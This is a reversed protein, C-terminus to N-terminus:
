VKGQVKLRYFARLFPLPPVSAMVKLNEVPGDVEDLFRFVREIPNNQMLMSFIRQSFAGQRYMIQLLMADFLQYRKPSPRVAFPHGHNVLSSVIRRSDVQIRRFAFGTSAKVRGGKTGIRLVRSGVRRPFPQDTMPIIGDETAVIKYRQTGLVAEIYSRLAHEYEGQTLLPASFLTFEVVARNEAFPLIYIFRMEGRQPTRFDFLSPIGPDFVPAETEIEWGVFHQKLFHYRSEDVRFERPVFLGDFAYEACVTKGGVDVEVHDGADRIAEVSGIRTEVNGANSLAARTYDYFDIGRIMRYEYPAIDMVSSYYRSHFRLRNWRHSVIHDFVAPGKVWSCWTRDNRVKADRDVILVRKDRLGGITMHYALSLGAAGGGAVVYDFREM